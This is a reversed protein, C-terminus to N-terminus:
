RKLKIKVSLNLVQRVEEFMEILTVSCFSIMREVGGYAFEYLVKSKDGKFSKGDLYRATM